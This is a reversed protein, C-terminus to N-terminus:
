IARELDEVNFYQQYDLQFFVDGAQLQVEDTRREFAFQVTILGDDDGWVAWDFGRATRDVTTIGMVQTVEVWDAVLRALPVLAMLVAIVILIRTIHSLREVP